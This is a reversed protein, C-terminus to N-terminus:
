AREGLPLFKRGVSYLLMCFGFAGATILMEAISPSYALPDTAGALPIIQGVLIFDYRAAFIGLIVMLSACLIAPLANRWPYLLLIIPILVGLLVELGWFAPSMPGQLLLRVPEVEEPSSNLAVLLKWTTFFLLIVLLMLLLRGLALVLQRTQAPLGTGTFRYTLVTVSALIASGSVFASLIFYIPLYPGHWFPRQVLGFVAGLTSHAAVAVVVGSLGVIKAIQKDRAVSAPSADREVPALASLIGARRAQFARLKRSIDARSLFFFEVVMLALYISYLTSMWWMPSTANPTLIAYVLRWPRELEAGIAVFGALLTVIALFVARKAVPEFQKMGFVHGLSSVLCMGTSSVVFFVYTSILIGWPVGPAVTYVQEHGWLFGVGMTGLGVATVVALLAIWWYLPSNLKRLGGRCRSLVRRIM